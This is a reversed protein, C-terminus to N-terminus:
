KILCRYKVCLSISAWHQPDGGDCERGRGGVAEHGAGRRGRTAHARRRRRHRDEEVLGGRREVARGNVEARVLALGREDQVHSGQSARRRLVESRHVGEGGLVTVLEVDQSERAVLEAVLGVLVVTLEEVRELVHARAAAELRSVGDGDELLDVDVTEVCEREELPELALHHDRAIPELVGLAVADGVAVREDKRAALEATRGDHEPRRHRAGVDRPVELLEEDAGVAGGHLAVRAVEVGVLDGVVDVREHLVEVPPRGGRCSRRRRRAAQLCYPCPGFVARAILAGTSPTAELGRAESVALGVAERGGGAAAQRLLGGRTHEGHELKM